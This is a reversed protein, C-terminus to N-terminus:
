LPSNAQLQAQRSSTGRQLRQANARQHLLASLIGPALLARKTAGAKICPRHGRAPAAHALVAKPASRIERLHQRMWVYATWHQAAPGLRRPGFDWSPSARDPRGPLTPRSHASPGEGHKTLYRLTTAPTESPATTATPQAHSDRQPANEARSTHRETTVHAGPGDRPSRRSPAETQSEEPVATEASRPGDPASSVRFVGRHRHAFQATGEARTGRPDSTPPSCHLCLM